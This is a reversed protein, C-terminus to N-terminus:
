TEKKQALQRRLNGPGGYGTMMGDLVFRGCCIGCAAAVERSLAMVDGRSMPLVSRRRVVASWQLNFVLRLGM